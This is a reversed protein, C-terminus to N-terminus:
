SIWRSVSIVVWRGSRKELVFEAGGGCLCLRDDPMFPVLSVNVHYQDAIQRISSVHLAMQIGERQATAALSNASSLPYRRGWHEAVGPVLSDSLLYWRGGVEDHAQFPEVTRGLTDRLRRGGSANDLVLDQLEAIVSEDTVTTPAFALQQLAEARYQPMAAVTDRLWTMSTTDKMRTLYRSWVLRSELLQESAFRSRFETRADRGRASFWHEVVAMDHSYAWVRGDDLYARHAAADADLGPFRVKGPLKDGSRVGWSIGLLEPSGAAYLRAVPGFGRERDAFQEILPLVTAPDAMYSMLLILDRGLPDRAARAANLLAPAAAPDVRGRSGLLSLTRSLLEERDLLMRRQLGEDALLRALAESFRRSLPGYGATHDGRFMIATLLPDREEVPDAIGPLLLSDANLKAAVLVDTPYRDFPAQARRRVALVSEAAIREAGVADSLPRFVEPAPGEPERGHRAFYSMRESIAESPDEMWRGQRRFVWIGRVTDARGDGHSYIIRGLLRGSSSLSDRRGAAPDYRYREVSRGGLRVDQRVGGSELHQEILTMASLSVDLSEEVILWRDGVVRSERRAAGRRTVAIQYDRGSTTVSLTENRRRVTNRPLLWQGSEALMSGLELARSPEPYGFLNAQWDGTVTVTITRERREVSADMGGLDAGAIHLTLAESGPRAPSLPRITVLTERVAVRASDWGAPLWYSQQRVAFMSDRAGTAQPFGPEPLAMTTLAVWVLIAALPHYRPRVRHLVSGGLNDQYM